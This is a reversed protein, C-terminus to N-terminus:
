ELDGEYDLGLFLDSGFALAGLESLEDDGELAVDGAADLSAWRVDESQTGSFVGLLLSAAAAFLMTVRSRFPVLQVVVGKQAHREPIQALARELAPSPALDQQPTDLLADLARAEDWLARAQPSSELLARASAREAEPMRAFDAGYADVLQGFRELTMPAQVDDRRTM